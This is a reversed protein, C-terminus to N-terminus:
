IPVKMKYGWVWLYLDDEFTNGYTYSQIIDGEKLIISGVWPYLQAAILNKEDLLPQAEPEDTKAQFWLRDFDNTANMAAIQQVVWLEGEPVPTTAQILNVTAHYDIKAEQYRDNYGWIVNDDGMLKCELDAVIAQIDDFDADTATVYYSDHFTDVFTRQNHLINTVNRLLEVQAGSLWIGQMNFQPALIREAEILLEDYRYDTREQGM